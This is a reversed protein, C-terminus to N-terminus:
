RGKHHGRELWLVKATQYIFSAIPCNGMSPLKSDQPFSLGLVYFCMNLACSSSDRMGTFLGPHWAPCKSWLWKVETAIIACSDGLPTFKFWTPHNEHASELSSSATSVDLNRVYNETLSNRHLAGSLYQSLPGPFPSGPSKFRRFNDILNLKCTFKDLFWGKRNMLKEIMWTTFSLCIVEKFIPALTNGHM